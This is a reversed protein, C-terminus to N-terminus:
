LPILLTQEDLVRGTIDRRSALNRARILQGPAGDELVEVKLSIQLAGEQIRAEAIQGRHIVTRAKLARAYVPANAPVPECFELTANENSFEALSERFNLIDRRERILDAATVATGRKITSRTIWIERHIRAQVPLTWTGLSKDEARLEFRAIFSSSIGSTPLEVRTISLPAEPIQRAPWPRTLRLELEGRDKVYDRQLTETLLTLLGAEDLTRVPAVPAPQSLSSPEGAFLNGPVFGGGLCAFLFLFTFKRAATARSSESTPALNM